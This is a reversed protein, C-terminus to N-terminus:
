GGSLEFRWPFDFFTRTIPLEFFIAPLQFFVTKKQTTFMKIVNSQLFTFHFNFSVELNYILIYRLLANGLYLLRKITKPLWNLNNWTLNTVFLMLRWYYVIRRCCTSPFNLIWYKPRWYVTKERSNLAWFMTRTISPLITYFHDLHFCCNIRTLPSTRTVSPLIVTFTHRFDLYDAGPPFRNQNSNTLTRTIPLWTCNLYVRVENM